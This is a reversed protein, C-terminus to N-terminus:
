KSNKGPCNLVGGNTGEGGEFEFRMVHVSAVFDSVIRVVEHGRIMGGRRVVRSSAEVGSRARPKFM